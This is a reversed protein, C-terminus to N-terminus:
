GMGGRRLESGLRDTLRVLAAAAVPELCAHGAGPILSLRSGPWRLHVRMAAEPPSSMDFRGHTIIARIDEFEGLDQLLRDSDVFGDNVMYHCQVTVFALVNGPDRYLRLLGPDSGAVALRSHWGAWSRAAAMRRLENEGHLERHYAALPDERQSRQLPALFERWEAPYFRAAGDPGYLWRRSAPGPLWTGHLVVALVRERHSGAYRLALTAGWSEGFLVWREIALRERLRELDTVLAAACNGTVSGRPTSRGAGRQDPLLIRYLAPDFLRRHEHRCGMGPGGHLVVVPVGDDNGCEEVHLRHASETALKWARNPQIPPYLIRM